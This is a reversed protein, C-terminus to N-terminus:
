FSSGPTKLFAIEEETSIRGLCANRHPFRGFRQIIDRHAIAYKLPEAEGHRVFHAIGEEQDALRESHEFPIYFFIRREHPQALDFGASIAARAAALAKEDQAFALANDRYLNRSFQDLLLVLALAGDATAAWSDCAGKCASDHLAGFRDKLAADFAEDKKFWDEPSCEEYWFTLIDAIGTKDAM